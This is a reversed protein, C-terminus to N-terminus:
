RGSGKGGIREGDEPGSDERGRLGNKEIKRKDQWWWEEKEVQVRNMSRGRM